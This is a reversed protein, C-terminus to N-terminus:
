YAYRVIGAVAGVPLSAAPRRSCGRAVRYIEILLVALLAASDTSYDKAIRQMEECYPVSRSVM